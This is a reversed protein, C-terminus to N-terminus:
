SQLPATSSYLVWVRLQHYRCQAKTDSCDIVGFQHEQKVSDKSYNAQSGSGYDPLPGGYKKGKIKRGGMKVRKNGIKHTKEGDRAILGRSKCSAMASAGMKSKPTNKCYSKSPKGEIIEEIRM